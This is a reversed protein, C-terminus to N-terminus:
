SIMADSGVVWPEMNTGMTAPLSLVVTDTAVPWWSNWGTYIDGPFIVFTARRACPLETSGTANRGMGFLLDKM